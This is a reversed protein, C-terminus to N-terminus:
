QLPVQQLISPPLKMWHGPIAATFSLPKATQPHRFELRLAHLAVPPHKHGLKEVNPTLRRQAGYAMDGLVPFGRSAAQARIQHMRGTKLEILLLSLKAERELCVVTAIAQKAGPTDHFCIEAKPENPIKRIFDDWLQEQDPVDGEVVALYFKKVKRSHFQENFRKLARQNRAILMVGSTGRDLRHPLGIFPMGAHADRQKLQRKLRTELSDINAAAQSFLGAPKDVILFHPEEHLIDILSASDHAM